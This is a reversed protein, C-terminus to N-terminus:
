VSELWAICVSVVFVMGAKIEAISFGSESAPTELIPVNSNDGFINAWHVRSSSVVLWIISSVV